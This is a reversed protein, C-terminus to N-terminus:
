DEKEWETVERKNYAPYPIFAYQKSLRAYCLEYANGEADRWIEKGWPDKEGSTTCKVRGKNAFTIMATKTRM